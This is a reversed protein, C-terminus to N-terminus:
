EDNANGAQPLTVEYVLEVREEEMSRNRRVGTKVHRMGLREMLRRSPLNESDCCAIFTSIGLQERAATMLASAAEFAIGRRHYDRHLVWGLELADDRGDVRYLTLGGIHKGEFIIAFDYFAPHPSHWEAAAKDILDAQEALSEVPLFMMYKNSEADSTYAFASELHEPGLPCLILRQTQIVMPVETMMPMCANYCAPLAPAVQLRQFCQGGSEPLMSVLM